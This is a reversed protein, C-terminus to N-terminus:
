ALEDLTGKTVEMRTRGKQSIGFKYAAMPTLFFLCGQQIVKIETDSFPEQTKIQVNPSTGGPNGELHVTADLFGPCSLWLLLKGLGLNKM